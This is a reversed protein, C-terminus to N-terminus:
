NNIAAAFQMFDNKPSGTQPTIVEGGDKIQPYANGNSAYAKIALAQSKLSEEDEGSLLNAPVGTENAVNERLQRIEDARKLGKLEAELQQARETAKQLESKSAEEIEDLKSAKEKLSEYDAYKERERKLRDGVIANLEDQTFTKSEEQKVTEEM